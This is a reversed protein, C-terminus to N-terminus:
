QRPMGPFPTMVAPGQMQARRAAVIDPESQARKDAKIQTLMHFISREIDAQQAQKMDQILVVRPKESLKLTQGFDDALTVAVSSSGNGMAMSDFAELLKVNTELTDSGKYLLLLPQTHGAIFVTINFM